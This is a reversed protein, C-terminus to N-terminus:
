QTIKYKERMIKLNELIMGVVETPIISNEPKESDIVNHTEICESLKIFDDIFELATCSKYLTDKENYNESKRAINRLSYTLEPISQKEIEM